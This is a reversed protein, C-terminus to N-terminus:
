PNQPTVYFIFERQIKKRFLSLIAYYPILIALASIGGALENASLEIVVILTLLSLVLPTIIALALAKYGLSIKGYVIVRDGVNLTSNTATAEIIKEKSEAVTCLKAAHCTACASQQVIKVAYKDAAVQAVIIGEHEIKGNM